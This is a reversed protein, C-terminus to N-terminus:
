DPEWNETPLLRALEEASVPRLKMQQVLPDISWPSAASARRDLHYPQAVVTVDFAPAFQCLLVVTRPEGRRAQPLVPETADTCASARGSTAEITVGISREARDSSGPQDTLIVHISYEGAGARKPQFGPVDLIVLPVGVARFRDARWSVQSAREIVVAGALAVVTMGAAVLSRRIDSPRAAVALATHTVIAVVAWLLALVWPSRAPGGLSIGYPVVVIFGLPVLLHSNQRRGRFALVLVVAALVATTILGSVLAVAAPVGSSGWDSDAVNSVAVAVGLATVTGATIGDVV